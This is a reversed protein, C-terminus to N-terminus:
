HWVFFMALLLSVVIELGCVSVRKEVATFSDVSVRQAGVFLSLWPVLSAVHKGLHHGFDRLLFFFGIRL